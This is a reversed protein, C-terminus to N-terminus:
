GNNVSWDIIEYDNIIFEEIGYESKLKEVLEYSLSPNESSSSFEEIRAIENSILAKTMKLTSENMSSIQSKFDFPLTIFDYIYAYKKDKHLRLIRGRRQIYERPNTSSALIFAKEISPIDVGEDLCKIAVLAQLDKGLEFRSKIEMRKQVSEESTYKAIKMGMDNGLLSCIYSVQKIDKSEKNDDIIYDDYIATGCYVLMHYDDKFDKIVDILAPIKSKSGAILKARKLAFYKAKNSLSLGDKSTGIIGKGIERSYELYLELDDESLTTVIPYYFYRCLKNESIAQELSYEICKKGFFDTIAQTGVEDRFREITASLGLRYTYISCLLNTIKASGFNHAEDAVLLIPKKIKRLISQTKEDSFSANTTLFTFYSTIGDNYNLISTLLRTKWDKHISSSYGIIPFINFKAAQEVWQEVLHQLPCVIIVALNYNLEELLRVVAGLATFTKGTGTAMDFIGLGNNKLWTDIANEQYDYLKHNISPLNKKMSTPEDETDDDSDYDIGSTKYSILKRKVADPFEIVEIKQTRNSWMEDFFYDLDRVREHEKWDLFVSVSEFNISFSNQSENLSGIFALKNSYSDEIIGFKEHYMGIKNSDSLIAVKIDLIGDSILNALLNLRRKVNNEETDIFDNLLAKEIIKNREDYGRNIADIDEPSLRPSVILKIKGRRKAIKFLGNSIEYLATSSFFGVARKYYMAENLAPLLFDKGILCENSRYTPKFQIELLSM